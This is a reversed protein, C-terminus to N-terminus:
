LEGVCELTTPLVHSYVCIAGSNYTIWLFNTIHVDDDHCVGIGVTGRAPLESYSNWSFMHYILLPLLTLVPM